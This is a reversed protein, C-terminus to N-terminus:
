GSEGGGVDIGKQVATLVDDHSRTGVASGAPQEQLRWGCDSGRVALSRSMPVQPGSEVGPQSRGGDTRSAESYVDVVQQANGLRDSESNAGVCETNEVRKPPRVRWPVVSLLWPPFMM